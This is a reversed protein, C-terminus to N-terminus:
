FGKDLLLSVIAVEVIDRMAWSLREWGVSYRAHSKNSELTTSTGIVYLEVKTM